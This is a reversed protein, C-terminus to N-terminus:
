VPIYYVQVVDGVKPSENLTVKQGGNEVWGDDLTKTKLQGNLFVKVSGPFYPAQTFFEVNLGDISGTAVQIVPAIPM